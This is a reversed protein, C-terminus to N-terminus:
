RKIGFASQLADLVEDKNEPFVFAGFSMRNVAEVYFEQNPRVDAMSSCKSELMAWRDEWLILLDPIGQIRSPDNKIVMSKPFREYIEEILDRQFKSERM